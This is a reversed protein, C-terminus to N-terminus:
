ELKGYVEQELPTKFTKGIQIKDRIDLIKMIILMNAFFAITVALM